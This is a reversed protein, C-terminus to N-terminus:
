SGPSIIRSMQAWDIKNIVTMLDQRRGTSITFTLNEITLSPFRHAFHYSLMIDKNFDFRGTFSDHWNGLGIVAVYKDGMDEDRFDLIYAIAAGPINIKHAAYPVPGASHLALTFYPSNADSEIYAGYQSTLNGEKLHLDHIKKQYPALQKELQSADTAKNGMEIVKAALPNIENDIKDVSDKLSQWWPFLINMRMREYGCFDFPREPLMKQNVITNYYNDVKTTATWNDTACKNKVAADFQDVLRHWLNEEAPTFDRCEQARVLGTCLFVLLMILLYKFM